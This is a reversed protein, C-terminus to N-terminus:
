DQPAPLKRGNLYWAIMRKHASKCEPPLPDSSCRLACCEVDCYDCHYQKEALEADTM